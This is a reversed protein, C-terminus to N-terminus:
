RVGNIGEDAIATVNEDNSIALSEKLKSKVLNKLEQAETTTEDVKAMAENLQRDFLKEDM